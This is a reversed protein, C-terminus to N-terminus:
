FKYQNATKCLQANGAADKFFVVVSVASPNQGGLSLGTESITVTTLPTLVYEGVGTGANVDKRVSQTGEADTFVLAVGGIDEATGGVSLTVDLNGNATGATTNVVKTAVVNANLCKSDLSVQETGGQVVNRVVVWIIGVAVLTLLIILLTAVITSLGKTNNKM